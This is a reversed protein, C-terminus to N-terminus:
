IRRRKFQKPLSNLNNRPFKIGLKERALMETFKVQSLKIRLKKEMSRRQPEFIRDYWLNSAIIHVSKNKM